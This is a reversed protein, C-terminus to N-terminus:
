LQLLVFGEVLLRTKRDRVGEICLEERGSVGLDRGEGGVEVLEQGLLKGPPEGQEDAEVEEEGSGDPAVQGVECIM